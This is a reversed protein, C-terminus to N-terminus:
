GQYKASYVTEYNLDKYKINQKLKYNIESM